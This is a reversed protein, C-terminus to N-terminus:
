NQTVSGPKVPVFGQPPVLFDLDLRKLRVVVEPHAFTAPAPDDTFSKRESPTLLIGFVWSPDM